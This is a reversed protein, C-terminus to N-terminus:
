NRIDVCVCQTLRNKSLTCNRHEAMGESRAGAACTQNSSKTADQSLQLFRPLGLPSAAETFHAQLAQNGEPFSFMDAYQGSKWRGAGPSFLSEFSSPFPLTGLLSVEPSRTEIRLESVRKKKDAKILSKATGKGEDKSYPYCCCQLALILIASPWVQVFAWVLTSTSNLVHFVPCNFGGSPDPTRLGSGSPPPLSCGDACSIQKLLDRKPSDYLVPIPLLHRWGSLVWLRGPQHTPRPLPKEWLTNACHPKRM